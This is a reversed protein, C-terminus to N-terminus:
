RKRGMSVRARIGGLKNLLRWSRSSRIGQLQRELIRIRKKLLRQNHKSNRIKLDQKLLQRELSQMKLTKTREQRRAKLFADAQGRQDCQFAPQLLVSKEEEANVWGVYGESVILFGNELLDNVSEIERATEQKVRLTPNGELVELYKKYEASNDYHHEERVAQAAQERLYGDLFKYHFLVCTLDAIRANDVWHTSGDFPKVRGDSFVLPFKTLNARFGFLTQRIGGRLAEVEDSELTNNRFLPHGRLSIRSINSVDYFRHREKLPEDPLESARGGSSLPKEPFMDLMHAVVATYSRENLYRLLSSLSVVDSYPYDFLEDIDVCLSWRGRGFREILYQRVLLAYRKFPLATRLVTVNDYEKLAEVTGDTSGNDLFFIHKAGLSLYHEVFSKVYPRGDRVLCVVVLEDAGYALEEPGHLYEVSPHVVRVADGGLIADDPTDEEAHNQGLPSRGLKAPNREKM